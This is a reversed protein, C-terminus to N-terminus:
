RSAAMQRKRAIVVVEVVRDRTRRHVQSLLRQRTQGLQVEVTVQYNDSTFGIGVPPIFGMSRVDALTLFGRRERLGVLRSAAVANNFMIAILAEPAANINVEGDGPLATVMPSLAQLAVPDFGIEVLTEIQSIPPVRMMEDAIDDALTAPLGSALTISRFQSRALAGGKKLRNINFKGQADEISLSFRGGAIDREEEAIAAWDEQYHDVDPAEIGDRRLAAVASAEGGRAIEAAQAAESFRQSRHISLDQVTLMAVLAVSALAIIALVNVLIVGSESDRM